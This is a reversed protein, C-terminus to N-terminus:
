KPAARRTLVAEVTRRLALIEPQDPHVKQAAALWDHAEDYRGLHVLVEAGSIWPEAERPDQEVVHKYHPLSEEVRGMMQLGAALNLRAEAYDPQYKVAAEFRKLAEQYRGKSVLIVGLSFHARAYKPSRRLVEEFQKIAADMDGLQSLATGLVLGLAANEPELELGRRFLAAAAAFDGTQMAQLGRNQYALASELLSNYEEMLPDSFAPEGRGRQRLHADAKELEGLKRYAMALPYHLSTAEPALALARELYEAARTADGQALVARGLGSLAAASAADLELARAFLRQADDPRGQDLHMEGLWVLTPFDNPRLALARTFFEAAKAREGRALYFQGLYYPWRPDNPALTQANRLGSVAADLYETAMLILGVDGYARGIEDAGARRANTLELVAYRDRVQKQLPEPLRQLDPMPVPRVPVDVDASKVSTGQAESRQSGRDAPGACASGLAALMWLLVTCGPPLRCSTM